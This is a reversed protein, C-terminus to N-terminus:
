DDGDAERKFDEFTRTDSIAAHYKSTDVGRAELERLITSTAEVLLEAIRIYQDITMSPM